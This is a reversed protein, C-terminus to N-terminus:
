RRSNSSPSQLAAWAQASRILIRAELRRDGQFSPDELVRKRLAQLKGLDSGAAELDARLAVHVEFAVERRARVAPLRDKFPVAHRFHLFRGSDYRGHAAGFKTGRVAPQEEGWPTDGSALALVNMNPSLAFKLGFLACRESAYQWDSLSTWPQIAQERWNPRVMLRSSEDHLSDLRSGPVANWWPGDESPSIIARSQEVFVHEGQENIPWSDIVSEDDLKVLLAHTSRVDQTTEHQAFEICVLRGLPDPLARVMREDLTLDWADFRARTVRIFRELQEALKRRELVVAVRKAVVDEIVLRQDPAEGAPVVAVWKANASMGVVRGRTLTKYHPRLDEAAAFAWEQLDCDEGSRNIIVSEGDDGLCWHGKEPDVDVSIGALDHGTAVDVVGLQLSSPSGRPWSQLGYVLTRSDPTFAFRTRCFAADVAWLGDILNWVRLGGWEGRGLGFSDTTGAMRASAAFAWSNPRFCIRSIDGYHWLNQPAGGSAVRWHADSSEWHKVAVTGGEFGVAMWGDAANAWAVCTADTGWPKSAQAAPDSVPFVVVSGGQTVLALRKEVSDFAISRPKAQHTEFTQIVREELLDYVTVVGRADAWALTRGDTCDGIVLPENRPEVLDRHGAFLPRSARQANWADCDAQWQSQQAATWTGASPMNSRRFRTGSEVAWRANERDVEFRRIAGDSRVAFLASADGQWILQVIPGVPQLEDVPGWRSAADVPWQTEVDILQIGERFNTAAAMLTGGPSFALCVVTRGYRLVGPWVVEIGGAELIRVGDRELAVALRSGDASYAFASVCWDVIRLEPELEARLLRYGFSQECWERDIAELRQMTEKLAVISGRDKAEFGLAMCSRFLEDRMQEATTKPQQADM